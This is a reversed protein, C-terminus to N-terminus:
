GHALCLEMRWHYLARTCNYKSLLWTTSDTRNPSQLYAVKDSPPKFEPRLNSGGIHAINRCQLGTGARGTADRRQGYRGGPGRGKIKRNHYEEPRTRTTNQYNGLRANQARAAGGAAGHNNIPGPATNRGGAAGQAPISRANPGLHIGM